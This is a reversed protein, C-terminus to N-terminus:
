ALLGVAMNYNSFILSVLTFTTLLSASNPIHCWELFQQLLFAYFSQSCDEAVEKMKPPQQM